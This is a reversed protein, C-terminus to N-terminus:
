FFYNKAVIGNIDTCLGEATVKTGSWQLPVRKHVFQVGDLKSGFILNIKTCEAVILSMIM